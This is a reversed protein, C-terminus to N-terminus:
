TWDSFDSQESSDDDSGNDDEEIKPDESRGTKKCYRQVFTRGLERTQALEGADKQVVDSGLDKVLGMYGIEYEEGDESEALDAKKLFELSRRIWSKRVQGDQMYENVRETVGSVSVTISLRSQGNSGQWKEYQEDTLDEPFIKHWLFTALYSGPPTDNCLPKQVKNSKFHQPFCPLTEYDGGEGITIYLTKEVDLHGDQFEYQLQTVRQFEYRSRLADQNYQYRLMVPEADFNEGEDDIMRQLRLGIQPASSGEILVLVDCTEPTVYEGRNTQIALEQDYAAIQDLESRIAKDGSPFTRKIEAIIGYEETFFATFDPTLEKEDDDLSPFRDFYFDDFESGYVSSLYAEWCSVIDVAKDYIQFRALHEEICELSM